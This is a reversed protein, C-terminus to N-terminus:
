KICQGGLPTFIPRQFRDRGFAAIQLQVEPSLLYDVFAAAAAFNVHPFRSPNVAVAAYQNFLTPDEQDYLLELRLRPRMALYTALDTLVYAQRQDAITLAAAMGSGSPFYWHHGRPEVGALKWVAREKLETGSGDARSVFPAGRRAIRAFADAANPASRVQAPDDAPGALAFRSYAICRRMLGFGAQVFEGELEPAHVLVLDADGRRAQALAQGTGVAVVDVRTGTQRTFGPVLADLLGSDALSTTTALLLRGAAHAQAGSCGSPAAGGLFDRAGLLLALLAPMIAAAYRRRAM